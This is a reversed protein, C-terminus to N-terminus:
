CLDALETLPADRLGLRQREHEAIEEGRRAADALSRSSPLLYTPPGSRAPRDLLRELHSAAMLEGLMAHIRSQGDFEKILGPVLNLLTVTVPDNTAVETGTLHVAPM